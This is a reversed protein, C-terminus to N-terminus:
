AHRDEELRPQSYRFTGHLSMLQDRALAETRELLQGARHDIAAVERKEDDTLTLIRLTLIEDIETGDFLNGPSEPAVQPYDYLIIPAALMTDRCDEDGALVPWAGVNHCQAALGQFGEPPDMLSVFEGGAVHLIAHTSALSLMLAEDRTKGAAGSLPTENMIRVTLKSVDDGIAQVGLEVAGTVSQQERVLIGAIQGDPSKVPEVSRSGPFEFRRFHGDSTLEHLEVNEVAVEREAAEQWTPYQREGVHLASVPRWEPEDDEPWRSLPRVLAGATRNMLHLFRVKVTLTTHPTGVVLCEAQMSWADGSQQSESYARPYLGGFTWRQRNKLSPRYPYLIYGEYLVADAIAEVSTSSM